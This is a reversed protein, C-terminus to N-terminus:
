RPETRIVLAHNPVASGVAETMRSTSLGAKTLRHQIQSLEHPAILSSLTVNGTPETGLLETLPHQGTPLHVAADVGFEVRFLYAREEDRLGAWRHRSQDGYLLTTRQDRDRVILFDSADWPLRSVAVRFPLVDMAHEVTPSKAHLLVARSGVQGGVMASSWVSDGVATSPIPLLQPTGVSTGALSRAWEQAEASQEDFLVAKAPDQSASAHFGAATPEYFVHCYLGKHSSVLEPLFLAGKSDFFARLNKFGVACARSVTGSHDGHEIAVSELDAKPERAYGVTAMATAALAWIQTVRKM